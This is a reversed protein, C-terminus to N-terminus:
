DFQVLFDGLFFRNWSFEHFGALFDFLVVVAFCLYSSVYRFWGLRRGFSHVKVVVPITEPITVPITVSVSVSVSIVTTEQFIISIQLTLVPPTVVMADVVIQSPPITLTITESTIMVLTVDMVVDMPPVSCGSHQRNNTWSTSCSNPSSNLSPFVDRSSPLPYVVSTKIGSRPRRPEIRCGFVTFFVVVPGKYVQSAVVTVIKKSTIDSGILYPSAIRISIAVAWSAAVMLALVPIIDDITSAPLTDALAAALFLFFRM